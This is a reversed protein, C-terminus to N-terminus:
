LFSDGHLEKSQDEITDHIGRNDNPNVSQYETVKYPDGSVPRRRVQYQPRQQPCDHDM